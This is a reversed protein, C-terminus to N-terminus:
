RYVLVVTMTSEVSGSRVPSAAREMYALMDLDLRMLDLYGRSIILNDWGTGFSLRKEMIKIEVGVGVGMDLGQASVGTNKLLTPHGANYSEGLFLMSFEGVSGLNCESIRIVFPVPPTSRHSTFYLDPYTGLDITATPLTTIDCGSEIVRGYFKLQGMGIIPDAAAHFFPMFCLLSLWRNLHPRSLSM